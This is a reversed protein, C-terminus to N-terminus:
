KKLKFLTRVSEGLINRKDAESINLKKIDDVFGKIDVSELMEFGYDTGFCLRDPRVTLLTSETIPMWGQFGSTDFYLKDFLEKWIKDLGLQKRIRPVRPSFGGGPMGPPLKFGDPLFGNMMRGQWIPLAGGHHPMLFKITPFKNLVGFMAEVCANTNAIEVNVAQYMAQKLLAGPPMATPILPRAGFAPHIVIPVDLKSVKEYLPYLSESGLVTKETNTELALGGFGLETIARDVEKLAAPSGGGDLPLHALGIFRGPYEKMLRANGDNMAQCFELGLYNLSAMHIVAMDIGVEDMVKLKAELNMSGRFPMTAPGMVTLDTIMGKSKRVAEEPIFQNHADVIFWKDAM